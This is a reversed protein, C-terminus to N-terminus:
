EFINDTPNAYCFLCNHFCPHEAYIGIDTSVTCGCGQATRQGADKKLSLGEGFLEALLAGSICASSQIGSDKPLHAMVASECCTYLKMSTAALVAEMKHLVNAKTEMDPDLFTFGTYPALRKSIKAYHDMFSTVCRLIGLSAMADAIESFGALNNGASGDPLIYFCVPDFRWTVADPGVLECLIKAQRLRDALPPIRPELVPSQANVTFNFFLRYGLGMLQEGFGGMLFRSFNKSWFVISHVQDPTAPVRTKKHTYPNVTEFFGNKIRDMFWDMYFAPIDTRRSASLVIKAPM